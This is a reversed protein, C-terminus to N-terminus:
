VPIFLVQITGGCIMDLSEREANNMKYQRLAYVPNEGAHGIALYEAEGGGISGLVNEKGVLMM